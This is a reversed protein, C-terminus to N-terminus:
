EVWGVHTWGNAETCVVDKGVTCRKSGYFYEGGARLGWDEAFCSAAVDAPPTALWAGKAAGPDAFKKTKPDYFVCSAHCADGCGSSIVVLQFGTDGFPVTDGCDVGAGDCADDPLGPITVITGTFSGVKPGPTVARPKRKKQKDLWKKGVVKIKKIAKKADADQDEWIGGYAGSRQTVKVSKAIALNPYVGAYSTSFEVNSLGSVSFGGDPLKKAIEVPTRAPDRLDIVYLTGTSRFWVLEQASDFAAGDVPKAFLSADGLRLGGDGYSVLQPAAVAAVPGALLLVAVAALLSLRRLRM